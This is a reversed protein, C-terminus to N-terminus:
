HHPVRGYNGLGTAEPLPSCGNSHGELDAERSGAVPILESGERPGRGARGVGMVDGGGAGARGKQCM